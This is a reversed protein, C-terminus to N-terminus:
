YHTGTVYHLICMCLVTFISLAPVLSVGSEVQRICTRLGALSVCLVCVETSDEIM